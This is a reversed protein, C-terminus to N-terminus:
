VKLKQLGLYLVNKINELKKLYPLVEKPFLNIEEVQNLDIIKIDTLVQQKKEPDFGLKYNEDLTKCLIYVELGFSGKYETERVFVIREAKAKVNIEEDIEREIAEFLSENGEVGGGPFVYNTGFTDSDHRVLVIKNENIIIGRVGVKM